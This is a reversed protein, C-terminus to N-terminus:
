DYSVHMGLITCFSRRTFDIEMYHQTNERMCSLSYIIKIKRCYKQVMVSYFHCNGYILIININTHKDTYM